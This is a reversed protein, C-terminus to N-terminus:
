DRDILEGELACSLHWQGSNNDATINAPKCLLERADKLFLLEGIFDFLLMESSEASIDLKHSVSRELGAADGLMIDLVVEAADAFVGALSESVIEIAIDATAINDIIKYTM